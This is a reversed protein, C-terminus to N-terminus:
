IRAFKMSKVLVAHVVVVILSLILVNVNTLDKLILASQEMQALIRIPITVNMSMKAIELNTKWFGKRVILHVVSGEMLTQVSM